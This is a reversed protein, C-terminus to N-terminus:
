MLYVKNTTSDSFLCTGFMHMLYSRAYQEVEMDTLNAPVM